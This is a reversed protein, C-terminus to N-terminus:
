TAARLYQWAGEPAVTLAGNSAGVLRTLITAPLEGSMTRIHGLCHRFAENTTAEREIDDIIRPAHLQVLPEVLMHTVSPVDAEPSQRLVEIVVMLALAAPGHHLVDHVVDYGTRDPWVEHPLYLANPVTCFFGLYARYGSAWAVIEQDCSPSTM